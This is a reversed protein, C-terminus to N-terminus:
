SRKDYKDKLIDAILMTQQLNKGVTQVKLGVGMKTWHLRLDVTGDPYCRLVFRNTTSDFAISDVVGQVFRHKVIQGCFDRLIEKGHHEQYKIHKQEPPILCPTPEPVNEFERNAVIWGQVRPLSVQSEKTLCLAKKVPTVGDDLSEEEVDYELQEWFKSSRLGLTLSRNLSAWGLMQCEVAEGNQMSIRYESGNFHDVSDDSYDDDPRVKFKPNVFTCVFAQEERGGRTAADILGAMGIDNAILRKIKGDTAASFCKFVDRFSRLLMCNQEPIKDLTLDNFYVQKM